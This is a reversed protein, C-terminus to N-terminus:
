EGGHTCAHVLVQFGGKRYIRVGLSPRSETFQRLQALAAEENKQLSAGGLRAFFGPKRIDVDAFMLEATNLVLCGMRNRTIASNSGLERILEEPIDRVGYSYADISMPEARLIRDQLARVAREAASKAESASDNSGAWKKLLLRRGNQDQAPLEASAWYRYVKM